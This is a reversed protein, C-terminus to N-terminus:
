NLTFNIPLNYKVRVKQGRQFGPKWKGNMKQIVRVAERDLDPQVGKLVEYDCLTGDTCVVFSVFVRGQAGAKQASVPYSLNQSLFQGLGQMGGAFEPQQTVATYRVTDAGASRAKETQLNGKDYTEEYSYSGDAYRGTWVGQKFGNEYLGQEVFLTHQTTDKDSRVQKQYIARGKGEVVEQHGTSDWYATVLEPDSQALPKYKGITKIQKIQGNAYWTMTATREELEDNKEAIAGNAHFTLESGTRKGEHYFGQERIVDAEDLSFLNGEWEQNYNQNGVTYRIIETSNTDNKRRVLPLKFYEKWGKSKSEYVIIDGTPVGNADIPALQKYRAQSSDAIVKSDAGFYTIRTGNVYMFPANSQFMIPITVRQRVPQGNKQGPKWANFLSFVRVAERDCDPRLSQLAKVNSVHGNPEVVGEVIVRGGIGDAQAPIPKRLTAQIFTNFFVIGGKPEAASDVEFSQYLDQGTAVLSGFLFFFFLWTKM